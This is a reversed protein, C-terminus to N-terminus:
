VGLMKGSSTHTLGCIDTHYYIITVEALQLMTKHSDIFRVMCWMAYATGESGAGFNTYGSGYQYYGCRWDRAGPPTETERRANALNLIRSQHESAFEGLIM